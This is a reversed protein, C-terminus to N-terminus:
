IPRSTFHREACDYLSCLIIYIYTHVINRSYYLLPICTKQFHLLNKVVMYLMRRAYINYWRQILLSEQLISKEALLSDEYICIYIYRANSAGRSYKLRLPVNYAKRRARARTIEFVIKWDRPLCNRTDSYIWLRTDTANVNKGHAACAYMLIKESERMTPEKIYIYTYLSCRVIIGRYIHTHIIYVIPCVAAQVLASNVTELCSLLEPDSM